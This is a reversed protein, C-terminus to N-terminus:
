PRRRGAVPDRFTQYLGCFRLQVQAGAAGNRNKLLEVTMPIEGAIEDPEDPDRDLELVSEAAYEIEGSGKSAFLGGKAQGVRNRHALALIPSGLRLALQQAQRVANNVADFETEIKRSIMALQRSWAHLSDIVVLVQKKDRVARMTEAYREVEAVSCAQQSGDLYAVTPLLKVTQWALDSLRQRDMPASFQTLPTKTVRSIARRFLEQPAMEVTLFMCPFGCEGAIQQALATKGQGPAAQLIHLGPILRGGLLEDLHSLGTIPGPKVGLDQAEKIVDNANLLSDVLASLPLLKNNRTTQDNAM